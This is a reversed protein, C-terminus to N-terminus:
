QFIPTKQADLKKHSPITRSFQSTTYYQRENRKKSNEVIKEPNQFWIKKKKTRIIKQIKLKELVLRNKSVFYIKIRLKQEKFFLIIDFGLVLCNSRNEKSLSFYSTHTFV